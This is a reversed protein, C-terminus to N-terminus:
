DETIDTLTYQDLWHKGCKLCSITESTHKEDLWEMPGLSLIDFTGCYPCRVPDKLYKEKQAPTLM